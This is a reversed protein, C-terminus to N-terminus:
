KLNNNLLYGLIFGLYTIVHMLKNKSLNIIFKDMNPYNIIEDLYKASTLYKYSQIKNKDLEKSNICSIIIPQSISNIEINFIIKNKPESHLTNYSCELYNFEEYEYSSYDYVWTINQIMDFKIDNLYFNKLDDNQLLELLKLNCMINFMRTNIFNLYM